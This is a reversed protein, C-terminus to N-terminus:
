LKNANINRYDYTHWVEDSIQVHQGCYKCYSADKDVDRGCNPCHHAIRTRKDYIYKVANTPLSDGLTRGECRLRQEPEIRFQGHEWDSGMGVYKVKTSARAGVSPNALTIVVEPDDTDHWFRRQDLAHNVSDRLETLTM